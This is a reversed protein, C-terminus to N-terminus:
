PVWTLASNSSPWMGITGSTKKTGLQVPLNKGPSAPLRTFTLSVHGRGEGAPCQHRCPMGPGTGVRAGQNGRDGTAHGEQDPQHQMAAREVQEAVFNDIGVQAAADEVAPEGPEAPAM